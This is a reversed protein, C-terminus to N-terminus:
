RGPDIRPRQWLAPDRAPNALRRPGFATGAGRLIAGLKEGTGTSIRRGHAAAGREVLKLGIRRYVLAATAVAWASRRPLHDIGIRASAYYPEAAAVLRAQLRAVPEAKAPDLLDAPTLGEERLWGLPLYVRGEGADAVVDRAINTLQFALGLDAARDLVAEERVGMVASMMVGVVGAVHWCYALLADLTEYRQGDVDLAFGKLHEEFLAAPMSHRHAVSALALFSPHLRATEGALARATDGRLGAIRAEPPEPAHVRGQGGEQGDVVDDCHRCWAYLRMVDRRTAPDFLQAAAAFSKSGKAISDEAFRDLAEGQTQSM